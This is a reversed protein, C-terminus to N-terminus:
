ASVWWESSPGVSARPRPREELQETLGTRFEHGAVVVSEPVLEVWNEVAASDVAVVAVTKGCAVALVVVPEVGALV